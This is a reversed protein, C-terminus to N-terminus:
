GVADFENVADGVCVEGIGGRRWDCMRGVEEGGDGGVVDKGVIEQGDVGWDMLGM